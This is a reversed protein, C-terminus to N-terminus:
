KQPTIPKRAKLDEILQRAERLKTVNFSNAQTQYINDRSGASPTGHVSDRVKDRLEALEHNRKQAFDSFADQYEGYLSAHAFDPHNEDREEWKSVTVDKFRREIFTLTDDASAQGTLIADTPEVVQHSVGHADVVSVMRVPIQDFKGIKSMGDVFRTLPGRTFGLGDWSTVHKALKMQTQAETEIPLASLRVPEGDMM